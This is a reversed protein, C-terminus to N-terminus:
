KEAAEKQWIDTKKNDAVIILRDFKRDIRNKLNVTKGIFEDVLRGTIVSKLM